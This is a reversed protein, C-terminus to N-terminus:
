DASGHALRRHAGREDPEAVEAERRWPPSRDGQIAVAGRRRRRHLRQGGTEGAAHRGVDSVDHRLAPVRESPEVHLEHAITRVLRRPTEQAHRQVERDAPRDRRRRDLARDVERAVRVTRDPM